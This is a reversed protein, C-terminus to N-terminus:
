CCQCWRWLLYGGHGTGVSLCGTWWFKMSGVLAVVVAVVWACSRRLTCAGALVTSM